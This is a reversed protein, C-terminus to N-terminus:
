IDCLICWMLDSPYYQPSTTPTVILCYAKLHWKAEQQRWHRRGRITFSPLVQLHHRTCYYVVDPLLPIIGCADITIHWLCWHYYAVSKMTLVVLKLSVHWWKIYTINMTISKCHVDFIDSWEPGIDEDLIQSTRYSTNWRFKIIRAM